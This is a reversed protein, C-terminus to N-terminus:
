SVPPLLFSGYLYQQVGRGGCLLTRGERWRRWQLERRNKSFMRRGGVFRCPCGREKGWGWPGSLLDLMDLKEPPPQGPHFQPRCWGSAEVPCGAGVSMARKRGRQAPASPWVSRRQAEPLVTGVVAEGGVRATTESKPGSGITLPQGESEQLWDSASVSCAAPLGVGELPPQRSALPPAM